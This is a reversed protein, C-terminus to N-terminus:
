KQPMSREEQSARLSLSAEQFVKEGRNNTQAATQALRLLVQATRDEYGLVLCNKASMRKQRPPQQVIPLREKSGDANTKVLFREDGEEVVEIQIPKKSM